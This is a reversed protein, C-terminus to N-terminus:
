VCLLIAESREGTARAVAAAYLRVQREYVGRREALERDTKFDIVFWRSAERFVLDAVGEALMGDPLSLLLAM